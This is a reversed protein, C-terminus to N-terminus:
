DDAQRPALPTGAVTETTAAHFACPTRSDHQQRVAQAHGNATARCLEALVCDISEIADHDILTADFSAECKDFMVRVGADVM